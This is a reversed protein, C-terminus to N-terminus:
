FNLVLMVLEKAERSIRQFAAGVRTANQEKFKIIIDSVTQSAM